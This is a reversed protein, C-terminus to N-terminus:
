AGNRAAALAAAREQALQNDYGNPKADKTVPTTAQQTQWGKEYVELLGTINVARYGRLQWEKLVQRWRSLQKVRATLTTIIAYDLENPYVERYIEYPTKGTGAPCHGSDMFKRADFHTRDVPMARPKKPKGKPGYKDGLIQQTLTQETHLRPALMVAVQGMIDKTLQNGFAALMPALATAVATAIEERSATATATTTATATATEPQSERARAAGSMSKLNQDELLKSRSRDSLDVVQQKVVKPADGTPAPTDGLLHQPTSEHTELLHQDNCSPAAEEETPAPALSNITAAALHWQDPSTLSYLPTTRNRTTVTILGNGVLDKIANSARRACATAKPSRSEMSFCNQGISTVSPWCHQNNGQRRALHMLVRFSNTSIPLEDYERRMVLPYTDPNNVTAPLPITWAAFPNITYTNGRTNRHISILGAQELWQLAVQTRRERGKTTLQSDEHQFCRTGISILSANTVQHARNSIRCLHAYVRFASAPMPTDDLVGHIFIPQYAFTTPM